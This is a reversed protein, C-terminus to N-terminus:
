QDIIKAYQDKYKQNEVWMSFCHDTNVLEPAYIMLARDKHTNLYELANDPSLGTLIRREAVANHKKSYRALVVNM